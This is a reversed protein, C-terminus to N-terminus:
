PWLASLLRQLDAAPAGARASYAAMVRAAIERPAAGQVPEAPLAALSALACAEAALELAAIREQLPAATAPDLPAQPDPLAAKLARRARRLSAAVDRNWLASVALARELGSQSPALGREASWACWLLVCVDLSREDQLSLCAPAVGPRQYAAVAWDWLPQPASM